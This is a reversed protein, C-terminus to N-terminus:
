GGKVATTVGDEEWTGAGHEYIKSEKGWAKGCGEYHFFYRTGGGEKQFDEIRCERGVELKGMPSPFKAVNGGTRAKANMGPARSESQGHSKGL